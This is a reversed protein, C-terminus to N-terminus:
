LLGTTRDCHVGPDCRIVLDRGRLVALADRLDGGAM